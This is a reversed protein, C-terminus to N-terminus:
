PQRAFWAPLDPKTDRLIEIVSKRISDSFNRSLIDGMRRYIADKTAAPLADFADSYIMYSCPYRMLAKDLDFDRLSRGLHDRPGTASFKEAFGSNGRVPGPLPADGIFLLADALDNISAPHALLNMIRMQHHFVLLAVVDSDVTPGIAHPATNTFVTNGQHVHPVASGTVFWGGFLKAFPTRGDADSERSAIGDPATIASKVQLDGSRHCRVCDERRTLKEGPRQLLVYYHIGKGPEQAALELFGNHVSGVAVNDNFYITRPNSPEILLAQISTKSFVAIQSEVPIHLADLLSSLYGHPGDMSLHASGQEIRRALAAVPDEAFATLEVTLILAFFGARTGWQFCFRTM